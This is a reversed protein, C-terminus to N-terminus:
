VAHPNALLPLPNPDVQLCARTVRGSPILGQRTTPSLLGRGLLLVPDLARGVGRLDAARVEPLAIALAGLVQQRQARYRACRRRLM